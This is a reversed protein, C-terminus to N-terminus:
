QILATELPSYEAERLYLRILIILLPFRKVTLLTVALKIQRRNCTFCLAALKSTNM